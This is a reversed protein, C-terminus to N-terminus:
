KFRYPSLEVSIVICVSLPVSNVAGHFLRFFCKKRLDNLKGESRSMFGNGGPSLGILNKGYRMKWYAVMARAFVVSSEIEQM